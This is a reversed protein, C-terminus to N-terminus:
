WVTAKYCQKVMQAVCLVSTILWLVESVKEGTKVLASRVKNLLWVKGPAAVAVKLPQSILEWISIM